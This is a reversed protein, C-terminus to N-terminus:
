PTLDIKPNMTDWHTVTNPMSSPSDEAQLPTDSHYIDIILRDSSRAPTNNAQQIDFGEIEYDQVDINTIWTDTLISIEGHKSRAELHVFISKRGQRNEIRVAQHAGPSDDIKCTSVIGLTHTHAELPRRPWGQYCTVTPLQGTSM